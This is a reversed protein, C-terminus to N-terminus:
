KEYGKISHKESKKVIKKGAMVNTTREGFAQARVLDIADFRGRGFLAGAGKVRLSLTNKVVAGKAALLRQLEELGQRNSFIYTSFVAARKDNWENKEVFEKMASPLPGFVTHFGLFVADFGELGPAEGVKAMTVDAGATKAGEAVAAAIEGDYGSCHVVM